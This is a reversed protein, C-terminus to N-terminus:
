PKLGGLFLLFSVPLKRESVVCLAKQEVERLLQMFPFVFKFEFYCM